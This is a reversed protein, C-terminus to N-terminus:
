LSALGSAFSDLAFLLCLNLVLGVFEAEIGPLFPIKRQKPKPMEDEENTHGNAALLPKRESPEQQSQVGPNKKKQKKAAEVSSSLGLTLILKVAGVAAYIFFIMRCAPIFEWGKTDQLISMIWGCVMMGLATGATGILSYWAFIDSMVEKPTLHAITSEEVARFPGIENGSHVDSDAPKHSM